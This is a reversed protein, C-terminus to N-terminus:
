IILLWVVRAREHGGPEFHRGGTAASRWPLLLHLISDAFRRTVHVDVLNASLIIGDVFYTCHRLLRRLQLKFLLWLNTNYPLTIPSSLFNYLFQTQPLNQFEKWDRYDLRGWPLSAPFHFCYLTQFKMECSEVSQMVKPTKREPRHWFCSGIVLGCNLRWGFGDPVNVELLRWLVRVFCAQVSRLFNWFKLFKYKLLHVCHSLSVQPRCNQQRVSMEVFRRSVSYFAANKVIKAQNLSEKNVPFRCILNQNMISAKAATFADFCLELWEECVHKLRLSIKLCMEIGTAEFSMLLNEGEHMEIRFCHLYKQVKQGASNKGRM